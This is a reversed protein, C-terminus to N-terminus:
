LLVVAGNGVRVHIRGVVLKGDPDATTVAQKDGSALPGTPLDLGFERPEVPRSTDQAPSPAVFIAATLLAAVYRALLMPLESGRRTVAFFGVGMRINAQLGPVPFCCPSSWSKAERTVAVKADTLM